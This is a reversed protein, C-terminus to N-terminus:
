VVRMNFVQLARKVDQKMAEMGVTFIDHFYVPKDASQRIMERVAEGGAKAMYTYYNIKRVGRAIVARYDDESVGSGGHMVLPLSVRQRVGELVGMDLKPEKLYLGHATGFSCALADIGTEKVFREADEPNTYIQAAEGDDASGCERKGLTGIEAEVSAGYTKAMEVVKCTNSVNEEFPLLSGDYMASTFGLKFARAVYDVSEGHDLHVCVPVRAKEAKELMVPGITDLPMFAEHVQAHMLIVPVNLEEAAGLVALISELNPTNFSGVAVQNKEADKLIDKLTVLM